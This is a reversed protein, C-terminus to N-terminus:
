LRAAMDSKRLSSMACMMVSSVLSKVGAIRARSLSSQSSSFITSILSAATERCISTNAAFCSVARRSMIIGPMPGIPAVASIVATPSSRWNRFACSRAAQSPRTGRCYEVPPSRIPTHSLAVAQTFTDPRERAVATAALGHHSARADNGVFSVFVLLKTKQCPKRRAMLQESMLGLGSIECVLRM